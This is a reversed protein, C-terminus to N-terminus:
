AMSVKYYSSVGVGSKTPDMLVTGSVDLAGFGKNILM